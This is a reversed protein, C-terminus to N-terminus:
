GRRMASRPCASGGAWPQGRRCSHAVLYAVAVAGKRARGLRVGDAVAAWRALRLLVCRSGGGQDPCEPRAVSQRLLRRGARPGGLFPQWYDEFNEYDM